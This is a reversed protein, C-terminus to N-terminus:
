AQASSGPDGGRCGRDGRTVRYRGIRESGGTRGSLVGDRNCREGGATGDARSTGGRSSTRRAWSAAAAVQVRYIKMKWAGQRESTARQM